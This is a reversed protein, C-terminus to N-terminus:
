RKFYAIVYESKYDKLCVSIARKMLDFLRKAFMQAEQSNQCEIEINLYSGNLFALIVRYKEM